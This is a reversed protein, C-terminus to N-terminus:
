VAAGSLLALPKSPPQRPAASRAVAGAIRPAHEGAAAEVAAAIAEPSAM